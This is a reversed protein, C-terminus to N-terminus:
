SSSSINGEVEDIGDGEDGAHSQTDMMAKKKMSKMAKMTQVDAAAMIIM